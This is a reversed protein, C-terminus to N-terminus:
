RELAGAVRAGLPVPHVGYLVFLGCILPDNGLRELSAQGSEGSEALVEVVRTVGSGHLDMLAQVLALAARRTEEDQFESVRQVLQDIKQAHLQFEASEM